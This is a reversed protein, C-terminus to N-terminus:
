ARTDTRTGTLRDPPAGAVAALLVPEIANDLDIDAPVETEVRLYTDTYGAFRSGDDRGGREGSEWLVPRVQGVARTLHDAKMRAALAGLEHVRERIVATPVRDPLEAARTGERPSFPFVHVHAFDIGAAYDLTARFEADTEGPFGVILDTTLHLDPIAARLRDVLRAFSATMCRRAMRRLVPDSGSQLPLHLHPLLRGESERWLEGFDGPLDWPELSSLRVRPVSTARLLRRVLTSLDLGLDSGYGGLHVGCLVVEAMGADELGRVEAVVEEVTRSREEGRAITVVCFSCQNRCGDQVKVFARTRAERFAHVGDPDAALVPMAPVDLETAVRAVLRDKDGNGVVLNVGYLAAAAQPELEAFCGTVVLRASPNRRHLGGVLKRSKRAAESTVACTNVVLVQASAPSAVVAHGAARFSRAWSEVEAENLRCGLATLFVNVAAGADLAAGASPAQGVRRADRGARRAGRPGVAQLHGAQPEPRAGRLLQHVRVHPDAAGSGLKMKLFWDPDALSQRAAAVIDAGGDRLIGEALEFTCIGGSAVVPTALDAGRLSSRIEASLEVNRAFPGREDSFVTPMCEYGSPGTYPYAARGVKPQQADEFKGGKSVSLYDAGGRALEVAFYQADDIRNGGEVVDDGLFRVGVVHERGVRARVAALVELPLRVRNEPPGGYEDDRTNLASLFSAMTYAHAYHLEVGDFGAVFANEAAQAFLDPLM